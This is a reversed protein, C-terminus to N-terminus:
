LVEPILNSSWILDGKYRVPYDEMSLLSLLDDQDVGFTDIEGGGLYYSDTQDVFPFVMSGMGKSETPYSHITFEYDDGTETVETLLASGSETQTLGLGGDGVVLYQNGMVSEGRAIELGARLPFGRNLLRALTSGVAVAGSNIVERLTVVGGIGGAQILAMGQDYSQCANLFFADVGVKEVSRADLKGDACEFGEDDIHGIYHLLDAQTGLVMELEAVSLDHHVTVDFPLGDRDGYAEEVVNREEDMQDDNCVVTIDIDGDAHERDLRNHFADVTPKSAGLPAGEGVWAQELSDANGPQVTSAAPTAAQGASRTFEGDRVFEEVAAEQAEPATEDRTEPLRIVALDNLLFPLLEVSGPDPAVHTTLKWEPMHPELEPFPVSLYARLQDALSADYLHSPKEPLLEEVQEREHLDVRYLGETRICCDLFFIQKLTREVARSFGDPHELEYEFDNSIIRPKEGPVLDAGLYFALPAAVFISGYDAPLEIRVDTDPIPMSEPIDLDDGLEIMAPHGRMTPYSREPTTEKLAASLASVAAMMDSPEETTTITYEPQEHRSRAGVLVEQSESFSIQTHEADATIQVPAEVELYTKIPTALELTYHESDLSVDAFHEAEAVTDRDTDRVYVAVVNPLTIAETEIMVAADVPANMRRASVEAPEVPGDTEFAYRHREVSDFVEVAEGDEVANFSLSM